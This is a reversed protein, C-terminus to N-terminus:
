SGIVSARNNDQGIRKMDKEIGYLKAFADLDQDGLHLKLRKYKSM